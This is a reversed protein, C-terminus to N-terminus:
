KAPLTTERWLKTDTAMYALLAEGEAPMRGPGALSDLVVQSLAVHPLSDVTRSRAFVVPDHARLVLVNAGDPVRILGLKEGIEDPTHPGPDVYLMLQGGSTLPTMERAAHPGTIAINPVAEPEALIDRLKDMAASTGNPALMGVYPNHRLLDYTEARARLLDAWNVKTVLKTERQVLLQDELKELLRSVYAPSLHAFKAIEAARYPPEFDALLRVLRGAKPGALTVTPASRAAYPAKSSGETHLVIAPQTVSLYVNGTLDIYGIGHERLQNQTRPAIWPAIVLMTQRAQAHRLASLVPLLREEVARPTIQNELHVLLEAYMGGFPPTVRIRAGIVSSRTTQLLASDQVSAVKWAPGLLEQLAGIGRELLAEATPDEVAM